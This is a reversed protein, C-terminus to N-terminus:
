ANSNGLGQVFLVRHLHMYLDYGLHANCLLPSGEEGRIESARGCINFGKNLVAPLYQGKQGSKRGGM